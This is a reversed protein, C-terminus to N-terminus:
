RRTRYPGQEYARGSFPITLSSHITSSLPSLCVHGIISVALSVISETSGTPAGADSCQLLRHKQLNKLALLVSQIDESKKPPPNEKAIPPAPTDQQTQTLEPTLPPSSTTPPPDKKGKKARKKSGPASKQATIAKLQTRLASHDISPTPAQTNSDSVPVEVYINDPFIWTKDTITPGAPDEPDLQIWNTTKKFFFDHIEARLRRALPCATLLDERYSEVLGAEIASALAVKDWDRTRNKSGYSWELGSMAFLRVSHIPSLRLNHDVSTNNSSYAGMREFVRYYAGIFLDQSWGTAKLYAAVDPKVKFNFPDTTADRSKYAEIISKSTLQQFSTFKTIHERHTKHENLYGAIECISTTLHALFTKFLQHSSSSILSIISLPNTHYREGSVQTKVISATRTRRCSRM